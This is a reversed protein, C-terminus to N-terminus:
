DPQVAPRASGSSSTPPSRAQPPPAPYPRYTTTITATNRRTPGVRRRKRGFQVSIGCVALDAVTSLLSDSMWRPHSTLFRLRELGEIRELVRLLASLDPGDSVDLGYRDVIQGLLTVERVGQAVLRRVEAAIEGVPRSREIGRRFPIICFTCAHSCRLGGARPGGGAPGAM